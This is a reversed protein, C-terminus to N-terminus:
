KSETHSLVDPSRLHKYCVNNKEQGWYRSLIPCSNKPTGGLCDDDYPPKSPLFCGQRQKVGLNHLLVCANM